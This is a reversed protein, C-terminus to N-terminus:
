TRQAVVLLCGSEHESLADDASVGLALIHSMLSALPRPMRQAVRRLGLSRQIAIPPRGGSILHLVGATMRSLTEWRRVASAALFPQAITMTLGASRCASVWEAVSWYRLHALRRDIRELYTRRSTRFLPGRLVHHFGVAPITTVLIGGPKLVRAVERLMNEIPQVHEMVSVSVVFDFSADAEPIAEASATHICTYLGEQKAMATELPDIDLGVLSRHGVREFLLRTLRGDGCGLDLGRGEPFSVRSIEDIEVARWVATAPQFPYERLFRALLQRNM